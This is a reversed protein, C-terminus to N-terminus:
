RVLAARVLPELERAFIGHAIENPHRDSPHVWLAEPDRGRFAPLTDHFLISRAELARGITRHTAEFPYEGDLGVLLPWLVVLLQGGRERMAADMAAIHEVTAAWGARNPAEVMERYWRTTERGVRMGEIRDDILAVLQSRWPPPPDDELLMRRRDLIWDDIYAQRAHFAESQQPDNLIMAYVVLDPELALNRTFLARLAPFDHGRRGCNLVQAAGGLARDLRAAYTDQECVGQGETFSDGMAVVRAAGEPLPAIAEGRCLEATYVFPVADPTREWRADVQTLGRERYSRRVAEDRLDVPFADRPDDPYVDLGLRKDDTEIHWPHAWRSPAIGLARVTLEAVLFALLSSAVVLACRGLWRRKAM